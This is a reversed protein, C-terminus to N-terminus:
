QGSDRNAALWVAKLIFLWVAIQWCAWWSIWRAVVNQGVLIQGIQWVLTSCITAVVLMGVLALVFLRVKGGGAERRLEREEEKQRFASRSLHKM